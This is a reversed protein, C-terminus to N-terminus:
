SAAPFPRSRRTALWAKLDAIAIPRSYHYGQAVDCGLAHLAAGQQATEVGEAVIKMDLQHGLEITKEVVARAEPDNLMDNVFLRDVKLETSPIRRLQAMSSYGTGFDDISLGIQKMRLRTLIDLATGLEGLLGTETIEVVLRSPHLGAAQVIPGLQDPFHVDTLSAACVNVSLTLAPAEALSAFESISRRMVLDTLLDILGCREATAIFLDPYILGGSPRALRVLAELGVVRDTALEIQPQYHVVVEGRELAGRLEPESLPEDTRRKASAAPRADRARILLAEVEAIRFPKQLRGIANLGLSSALEEAARLVKRDFGSILVLAASCGEAALQRLLEIGDVDPMMLDIMVIATEAGLAKRFDAARTTTTCSMGVNEAAAAILEGIDPEDDVVLVQTASPPSLLVNM